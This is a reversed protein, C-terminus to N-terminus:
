RSLGDRDPTPPGNIPSRWVWGVERGVSRSASRVLSVLPSSLSSLFFTIITTIRHCATTNTSRHPRDNSRDSWVTRKEAAAWDDEGHTMSCLGLRRREVGSPRRPTREDADRAAPAAVTGPPLTPEDVTDTPDKDVTAGAACWGGGGEGKM